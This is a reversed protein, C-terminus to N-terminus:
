IHVQIPGTSSSSLLRSFTLFSMNLSAKPKGSPYPIYIYLVYNHINKYTYIDISLHLNLNM